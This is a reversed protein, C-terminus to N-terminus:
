KYKAAAIWDGDFDKVSFVAYNETVDPLNVQAQPQRARLLPRSRDDPNNIDCVYTPANNADLSAYDSVIVTKDNCIRAIGLKPLETVEGTEADFLHSPALNSMTIYRDSFPYEAHYPPMLARMASIKGATIDYVMVAVSDREEKHLVAAVIKEGDCIFRPGYYFFPGQREPIMGPLDANPM